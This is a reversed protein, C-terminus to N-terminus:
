GAVDVNLLKLDEEKCVEFIDDLLKKDTKEKQQFYM